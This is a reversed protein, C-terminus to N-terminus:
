SKRIVNMVGGASPEWVFGATIDLHKKALRKIKQVDTQMINMTIKFNKSWDKKWFTWVLVQDAWFDDRCKVPIDQGYINKM